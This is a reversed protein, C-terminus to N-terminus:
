PFQDYGQPLELAENSVRLLKWDWPKWSIQRWELTFPSNLRNVREKVMSALESNEAGKIDIKGRWFGARRGAQVQAGTSVIRIGRLYGFLARSRQLVLPRDQGWQDKYEDALFSTFKTWNRGELSQVLHQTHLQVQREASWLRALYLGVAIALALGLYFGFRFTRQM